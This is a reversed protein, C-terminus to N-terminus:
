EIFFLYVSFAFVFVFYTVIHAKFYYNLLHFICYTSVVFVWNCCECKVLRVELKFLLFVWLFVAMIFCLLSIFKFYGMTAANGGSAAEVCIFAILSCGQFIAFFFM